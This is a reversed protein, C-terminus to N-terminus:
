LIPAQRNRFTTSPAVPAIDPGTSLQSQNTSGTASSTSSYMEATVSSAVPSTQPPLLTIELRTNPATATTIQPTSQSPTLSRRTSGSQDYGNRASNAAAVKLTTPRTTPEGLAGFMRVAMLVQTRESIRSSAAM